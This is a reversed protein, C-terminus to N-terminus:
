VNGDELLKLAEIGDSLSIAPENGSKIVKIFHKMEEMYTKNIDFMKEDNLISERGELTVNMYKNVFDCVISGRSGVIRIKRRKTMQLYDLHVNCVFDDSFLYIGEFIDDSDIELNSVRTKIVKWLLPDGFFYRMYDVEHSLDLAVGGGMAKKASYSQRYDVNPRWSPLFQGVEIKAFYLNGIVKQSLQKKIYEIASLFRLNYAIFVKIKRRKVAEKLAEIRDLNHSLPKEIFLNIGREALQVATDIHKNTENAIIAFDADTEELDYIITIKGKKELTDLYQTNKTYVFIRDIGDLGVLNSIHRKGISGCGVVLVKM